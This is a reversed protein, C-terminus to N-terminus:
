SIVRFKSLRYEKLADEMEKKSWPRFLMTRYKIIMDVFEYRLSEISMIQGCVGRFSFVDGVKYLPNEQTFECKEYRQEFVSTNYYKSYESAAGVKQCITRALICSSDSRLTKIEIIHTIVYKEKEFEIVEGVEIEQNFGVRKLNLVRQM